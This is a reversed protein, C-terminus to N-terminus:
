LLGNLTALAEQRQSLVKRLADQAKELEAQKAKRSEKYKALAAKLEAAPAKADIAKQLAERDPNPQAGPFGGGGGGGQDGGRGGRGFGRGFGGALAAMRAENVKTVLPEIANWEGDDTIELQEKTREAMRKQFEAPDFNGRGGGQGGGDQQGGDRNRRPRDGGQPDNQAFTQATSLCLALTTALALMKNTKM